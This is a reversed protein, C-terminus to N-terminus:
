TEFAAAALTHVMTNPLGLEQTWGIESTYYGVTTREKLESFFAHEQVNNPSALESLLTHIQSPSAREISTKYLSMCKNEIADLGGLFAQQREKLEVSLALDIYEHVKAEAAGPTDTRPIIAEVLVKLAALQQASLIESAYTESPKATPRLRKLLVLTGGGMSAVFAAWGLLARRGIGHTHSPRLTM